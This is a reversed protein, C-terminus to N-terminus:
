HAYTCTHTNSVNSWRILQKFSSRTILSLFCISSTQAPSSGPPVEPMWVRVQSVHCLRRCTVLFIQWRQSVTGSYHGSAGTSTVPYSHHSLPLWFARKKQIYTAHTRTHANCAHAYTHKHPATHSSSVQGSLQSACWELYQMLNEEDIQEQSCFALKAIIM